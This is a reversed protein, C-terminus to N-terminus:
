KAVELFGYLVIGNAINVFLNNDIEKRSFVHVAVKRGMTKEFAALEEFHFTGTKTGEPMEVAIDIDSGDDDEGKRYSGFLMICRPTNFKQVLIETINNRILMHLNYMIKERKYIPSGANAKIRYIVGLDKVSVFGISKLEQIIRSVTAKSLNTNKATESLTFDLSPYKFFQTMVLFTITFIDFLQEIKRVHTKKM